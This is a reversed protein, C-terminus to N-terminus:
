WERVIAREGIEEADGAFFFELKLALFAFEAGLNYVARELRFALPQRRAVIWIQEQHVVIKFRERDDIEEDHRLVEEDTLDDLFSLRESYGCPARAPNPRIDQEATDGLGALNMDHLAPDDTRFFFDEGIPLPRKEQSVFRRFRAAPQEVDHLAHFREALRFERKIFDISEFPMKAIEIGAVLVDFGLYTLLKLIQAVTSKDIEHRTTVIAQSRLTQRGFRNAPFSNSTMALLLAVFCDM